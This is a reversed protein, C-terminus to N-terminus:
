REPRPRRKLLGSFSEALYAPDRRVLVAGFGVVLCLEALLFALAAGTAGIAAGLAALCAFYIFSSILTVRSLAQAQGLPVLFQSSLAGGMGMLVPIPALVRIIPGSNRFAEGFVLVAVHDAFGFLILSMPITFALYVLVVRGSFRAARERSAAMAANVRASLAVSLPSVVLACVRVIKDAAAYMGLAAPGAVIGLVVPAATTYILANSRSVFYHRFEWIQEAGERLRLVPAGMPYLRLVAILGAAGAVLGGVGNIMVALNAHSPDRVLAVTAVFTFVRALVSTVLFVGMREVGMVFWDCAMVAGVATLLGSALVVWAPSTRSMVALALLVALAPALMVLRGSLARWFTRQLAAPDSRAIAVERVAGVGYGWDILIWAFSGVSTCYTFAGYGSVGLVRGLYPAMVLGLLLNSAQLVYVLAVNWVLARDPLWKPM